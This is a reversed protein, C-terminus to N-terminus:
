STLLDLGDQSVRHFGTEVLFVVFNAPCPPPCRYDWTRPLSLCSFPTFWSPPAPLSGLDHWQVGARMMAQTSPIGNYIPQSIVECCDTLVCWPYALSSLLYCGPFVTEKASRCLAVLRNVWEASFLLNALLAFNPHSM